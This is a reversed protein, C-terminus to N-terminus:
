RLPFGTVRLNTPSLIPVVQLIIFLSEVGDRDCASFEDSV